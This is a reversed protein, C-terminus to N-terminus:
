ILTWDGQWLAVAAVLANAAAHSQMADTLRGRRLKVLSFVIGAVFAEGWRGHLLAFLAAASLIAAWRWLVGGRDLREQVYGRFFAEEVVPVVLATGVLRLVVWLATATPGLGWLALAGGGVPVADPADALVVWVVGVVLGAALGPLDVSLALRRLAPWFWLVAAGVVLTRLPFGLEPQPFLAGVVIGSLMFAVFPLIQAAVPDSRLPSPTSLRGGENHLWPVAHVFAVLGLALLTFFLWGAYSHFGNVALDPSVHAGILILVAIRVVNLVWSLVLGVPLVVLWYRGLRLERRFIVAYLAVFATTLAIGEVGSCQRAVHVAFDGVGIIYEPPNAVVGAGTLSLTVGVANFTLDTLAPSDWIPLILNAIDPVLASVGLVIVPAHGDQALFRRWAAPPALWLVGGLGAALGGVVWPGLARTFSAGLDGGWTLALPLFMLGVGSLHLGRWLGADRGDMAGVFARFAAPRAAVIMAAAGIMVLARVVLGRLGDCLVPSDTLRCEIDALLQYSLALVALEAAFLLVLM